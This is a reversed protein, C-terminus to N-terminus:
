AAGEPGPEQCLAAAWCLSGGSGVSSGLPASDWGPATQGGAWAGAWAGAWCRLETGLNWTLKAVAEPRHRTGPCTLAGEGGRGAGGGGAGSRGGGVPGLGRESPAATLTRADGGGGERRSSASCNGFASPAQLWLFSRAGHAVRGGAGVAACGPAAPLNAPAAPRPASEGPRAPPAPPAPDRSGPRHQLRPLAEVKERLWDRICPHPLGSSRRAARPHPPLSFSSM